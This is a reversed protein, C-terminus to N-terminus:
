EDLLRLQTRSRKLARQREAFAKDSVSPQAVATQRETLIEDRDLEEPRRADETLITLKDGVMEAFGGDIFLEESGEDSEVRLRGVDLKVVLPARGTLFGIEGDHAPVAVFRVKRDLVIKEPTVVSCTFLKGETM